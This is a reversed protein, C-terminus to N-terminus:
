CSSHWTEILQGPELVFLHWHLGLKQLYVFVDIWKHSSSNSCTFPSEHRGLVIGVVDNEDIDVHDPEDGDKEAKEFCVVLAWLNVLYINKWLRQYYSFNFNKQWITTKM